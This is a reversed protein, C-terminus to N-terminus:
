DIPIGTRNFVEPPLVDETADFFHQPATQVPASYAGLFGRPQGRGPIFDDADDSPAPIPLPSGSAPYDPAAGPTMSVNVTPIPPSPDVSVQVSPPASQAAGAIAAQAAASAAAAAAAGVDGGNVGYEARKQANAEASKWILNSLYDKGGSAAAGIAIGLIAGGAIGPVYPPFYDRSVIGLIVAGWAMGIVLSYLRFIKGPKQGDPVIMARLLETFISVIFAHALILQGLQIARQIDNM